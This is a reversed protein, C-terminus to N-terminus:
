KLNTIVKPMLARSYVYILIPVSDEAGIANKNQDFTELSNVILNCLSIYAEMKAKPTKMEDM